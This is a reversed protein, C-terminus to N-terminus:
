HQFLLPQPLIFELVDLLCTPLPIFALYSSFLISVSQEFRLCVPINKVEVFLYKTESKPSM